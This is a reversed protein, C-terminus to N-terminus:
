NLKFIPVIKLQEIIIDEKKGANIWKVTAKM